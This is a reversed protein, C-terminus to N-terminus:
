STEDECIVEHEVHYIFKLYVDAQEYVKCDCPNTPLQDPM